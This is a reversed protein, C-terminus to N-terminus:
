MGQPLLVGASANTVGSLIKPQQPDLYGFFTGYVSDANLTFGYTVNTTTDLTGGEAYLKDGPNIQHGALPSGSQAIVSLLFTGGFLFSCGGENAQYNDLAVAPIQGILVPQGSVISAPCPIIQRRSTPTGTFQQNTM